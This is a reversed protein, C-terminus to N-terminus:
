YPCRPAKTHSLRGLLSLQWIEYYLATQKLRPSTVRVVTGRNPSSAAVFSWSPWPPRPYSKWNLHGDLWPVRLQEMIWASEYWNYLSEPPTISTKASFTTLRFTYCRCFSYVSLGYFAWLRQPPSSPISRCPWAETFESTGARTLLCSRRLWWEPRRSPYSCGVQCVPPFATQTPKIIGVASRYVSFVWGARCVAPIRDDPQECFGDSQNSGHMICVTRRSGQELLPWM